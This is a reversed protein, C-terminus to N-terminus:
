ELGLSESKYVRDYLLSSLVMFTSRFIFLAGASLEVTQGSGIRMRM